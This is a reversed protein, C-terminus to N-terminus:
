HPAPSHASAPRVATRARELQEIMLSLRDGEIILPLLQDTMEPRGAYLDIRAQVIQWVTRLRDVEATIAKRRAQGVGSGPEQESRNQTEDM